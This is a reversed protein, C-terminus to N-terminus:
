RHGNEKKAKKYEELDEKDRIPNVMKNLITFLIIELVCEIYTEKNENCVCFNVGIKRKKDKKKLTIIRKRTGHNERFTGSSMM